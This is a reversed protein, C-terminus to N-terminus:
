LSGAALQERGARGQTAPASLEAFTMLRIRGSRVAGVFERSCLYEYEAVRAQLLRTGALGEVTTAPHCPIEVIAPPGGHIAVARLVDVTSGGPVSLIGAPVTFASEARWSLWAYYKEKVVRQLGLGRSASFGLRGAADTREGSAFYHRHSRMARIGAERCVAMITGALPEFRHTGQHSDWHDLRPGVLERAREIQSRVERRVEAMSVRGLLARKALTLPPLFSGDAGVLTPIAGAECVPKGQSLNVHLGVGLEPCDAAVDRIDEVFPMNVMLSTSSIAGLRALEHVATNTGRSIGFDDANVIVTNM